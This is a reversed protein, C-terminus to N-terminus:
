LSYDMDKGAIFKIEGMVEIRNQSHFDNDYTSSSYSGMKGVQKGLDLLVNGNDVLIFLLQLADLGVAVQHGDM